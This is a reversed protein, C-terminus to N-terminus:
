SLDECAQTDRIRCRLHLKLQGAMFTVSLLEFADLGVFYSVANNRNAAYLLGTTRASWDTVTAKTARDSPCVLIKPTVLDLSLGLFNSYGQGASPGYTGGESPPLHWPYRNDHDLAWVKYALCVQHINSICKVCRGEEKARALAPLLLGALLAIVAIVVLLEILTFGRCNFACVKVLIDRAHCEGGSKDM